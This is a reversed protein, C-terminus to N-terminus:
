LKGNDKKFNLWPNHFISRSHNGLVLIIQDILTDINLLKSYLHRIDNFRVRFRIFFVKLIKQFSQIINELVIKSNLFINYM